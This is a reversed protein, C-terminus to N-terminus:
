VENLKNHINRNNTDNQNKQNKGSGALLYSCDANNSVIKYVFFM